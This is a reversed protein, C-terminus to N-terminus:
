RCTMSVLVILVMVLVFATGLGEGALLGPNYRRDRTM